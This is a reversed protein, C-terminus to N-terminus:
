LSWERVRTKLDKCLWFLILKYTFFIFVVIICSCVRVSTHHVGLTCLVEAAGPIGHQATMADCFPRRVMSVHYRSDSKIVKQNQPSMGVCQRGLNRTFSAHWLSFSTLRCHSSGMPKSEPWYDVTNLPAHSIFSKMRIITQDRSCCLLHPVLIRQTTCLRVETLLFSKLVRANTPSVRNIPTFKIYYIM